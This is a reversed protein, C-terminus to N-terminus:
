TRPNNVIQFVRSNPSKQEITLPHGSENEITLSSRIPIEGARLTILDQVAPTIAVTSGQNRPLNAQAVAWRLTGRVLVDRPDLASTVLFTSPTTRDELVDLSLRIARGLIGHSGIRRNRM